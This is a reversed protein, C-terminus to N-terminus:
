SPQGVEADSTLITGYESWLPVSLFNALRKADDLIAPSGYQVLFRRSVDHLILNIKGGEFTGWKNTPSLEGILQIAHVESIAGTWKSSDKPTKFLEPFAKRWLGTSTDFVHRATLVEMTLVGFGSFVIGFLFWTIAPELFFGRQYIRYTERLIAGAGVFPLVGFLFWSILKPRIELRQLSASYTAHSRFNTNSSAMPEWDVQAAVPDTSPSPAFACHYRPILRHITAHLTEFLRM